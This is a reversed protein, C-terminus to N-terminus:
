VNKKGKRKGRKREDVIRGMGAGSERGSGSAKKRSEKGGNKM